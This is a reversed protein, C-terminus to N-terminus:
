GCNNQYSPFAVVFTSGQGLQSKCWVKGNMKEVLKKVIFLGLGTSHEDGTPKPTLRSFKKFLKSLDDENLGPGEDQIECLVNDEKKFLRVIVRKGYPSYKIANSIINELVQCTALENTLILCEQEPFQFQLQINKANAREFYNRVVFQVTECLDLKNVSFTIGGSEIANVDLLNTIIEVMQQSSTTIIRAYEIIETFSDEVYPENLSTQILDALGQIAALPNKLDHVAISLFENKEHNLKILKHNLRILEKNKLQIERTRAIVKEEMLQRYSEITMIDSYTRLCAVTTTILRQRSLETKNVYDNIDYKVIVEEEPAYGPQGTRLIIRVFSNKLKERIYHVLQLGADNSEMVVDLFIVAIDPHTQLFVKAEEASYASFLKLPKGQYIFHGLLLISVQHIDEEDDVILIKWGEQSAVDVAFLANNISSKSVVKSALNKQFPVKAEFSNKASREEDPFLPSEDADDEADDERAFLVGPFLLSEDVDDQLFKENSSKHAASLTDEQFLPKGKQLTM